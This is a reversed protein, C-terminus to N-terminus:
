LQLKTAGEKSSTEFYKRIVSIKNYYNDNILLIENQSRKAFHKTKNTIFM